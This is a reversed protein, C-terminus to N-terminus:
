QKGLLLKSKDLQSFKKKGLLFYDVVISRQYIPFEFRKANKAKFAANRRRQLIAPILIIISLYAKLVSLAFKPRRQDFFYYGFAILDLLFRIPLRRLLEAMTYHKLLLILGNRHHLYTKWPSASGMTGSGYHYVESMPLYMLRYGKFHMRWCLDAEDQYILFIEDFLGVKKIVSMKTIMCNGTTWAIDIADNYQENDKETTFFIRGRCFPYGYIDMFGGAGGAYEFHSKKRMSKIKPQAAGVEPHKEMYEVMPTLWNKSVITDDNLFVVYKSKIKQLAFNCCGGFGLRKNLRLFTLKKYHKYTKYFKDYDEKKSNNDVLYVQINKYNSSLVSRICEGIFKFQDTTILIITVQPSKIM